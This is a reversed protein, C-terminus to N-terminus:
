GEHFYAKVLVTLCSIDTSCQHDQLSPFNEHLLEYFSASRVRKRGEPVSEIRINERIQANEDEFALEWIFDPFVDLEESEFSM